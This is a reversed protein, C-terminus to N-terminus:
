NSVSNVFHVCHKVSFALLAEREPASRHIHSVRARLQAFRWYSDVGHFLHALVRLTGRFVLRDFGSLVGIVAGAHRNPFAEM